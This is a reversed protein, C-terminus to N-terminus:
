KNEENEFHRKLYSMVLHNIILHADEAPGYEKLETPVHICHRALNKLQGGDFSTLAVTNIGFSNAFKISSILNSSNGSASIAVLVDDKKCYIKIQRLFVEEFGYDNAIATMIANNDVLSIVKLPNKSSNTGIALDNAFHSATSASGGNGIFYVTSKKQKAELLIEIFKKINEIDINKIVESVYQIYNESFQSVDENFFRDINNM